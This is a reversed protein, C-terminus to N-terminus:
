VYKLCIAAVDNFNLSNAVLIYSRATSLEPTATQVRCGAEQAILKAAAYDWVSVSREFFAHARGAALDCIDGVCTGSRRIDLSASFLEQMCSFTQTTLEKNYPSTGILTLSESLPREQVQLKKGNLFAGCGKVAQFSEETYPNYCCALITEKNEVLAISVYSNHRDFIYNTTGDIPDVVWTVANSLSHEAAEEGLFPTGPLLASLQNFILNQTEKDINTVLDSNGSKIEINKVQAQKFFRGAAEACKAVDQLLDTLNAISM